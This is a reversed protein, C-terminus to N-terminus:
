EIIGEVPVIWFILGPVFCGGIDSRWLWTVSSNRSIACEAPTLTSMRWLSAWRPIARTLKKSWTLPQLHPFKHTITQKYTHTNKHTDTQRNKPSQRDRDTPTGAAAHNSNQHFWSFILRYSSSSILSLFPAWFLGFLWKHLNDVTSILRQLM